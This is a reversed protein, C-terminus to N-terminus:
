NEGGNLVITWLNIDEAYFHYQANIIREVRFYRRDIETDSFLFIMDGSELLGIIIRNEFDRVSNLVTKIHSDIQNTFLEEFQNDGKLFFLLNKRLELSFTNTM